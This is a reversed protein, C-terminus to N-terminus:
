EVNIGAERCRLDAYANLAEIDLTDSAPVAATSFDLVFQSLALNGLNPIDEPGVERLVEGPELFSPARRPAPAAASVIRNHAELDLVPLTVPPLLRETFNPDSYYEIKDVIAPPMGRKMIIARSPDLGVIEEPLKLRRPKQTTTFGGKGNPTKEKVTIHGMAKSIHEADETEDANPPYVIQLAHNATYSKGGDRNLLETVQGMNQFVSLISFGYSRLFSIGKDLAEIKGLAAREDQILLCPHKLDKEQGLEVRTNLDLMQQYFIRLLPTLRALNDQTICLYITMPTRRLMRLDFDNASTAADILPNAWLELAARFGAIIGARTVDAAISTYSNLSLVCEPSLPNGAEEREKVIRKFYESCDGDALSERRVQGITVLKGPTECLMLAIGM